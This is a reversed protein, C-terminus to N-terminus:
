WFGKTKERVKLRQMPQGGESYAVFNSASAENGEQGPYDGSATDPATSEGRMRAVRAVRLLRSSRSTDKRHLM